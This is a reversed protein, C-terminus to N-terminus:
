TSFLRMVLLTVVIKGVVGDSDVDQVRCGRRVSNELIIFTFQRCNTRGLFCVRPILKRLHWKFRCLALLSQVAIVGGGAAM